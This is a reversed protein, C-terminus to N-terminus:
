RYHDINFTAAEVSAGVSNQFYGGNNEAHVFLALQADLLGAKVPHNRKFSRINLFSRKLEGADIRPMRQTNGPRLLVHEIIQELDNATGHLRIATLAGNQNGMVRVEIMAEDIGRHRTMIQFAVREMRKGAEIGGRQAAQGITLRYQRAGTLYGADGKIGFFRM